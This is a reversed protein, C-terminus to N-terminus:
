TDGWANLITECFVSETLKGGYSFWDPQSFSKLVSNVGSNSSKSPQM